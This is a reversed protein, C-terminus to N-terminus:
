FLVLSVDIAVCAGTLGCALFRTLMDIRDRPDDAVEADVGLDVEVIADDLLALTRGRDETSVADKHLAFIRPIRMENRTSDAANATVIV